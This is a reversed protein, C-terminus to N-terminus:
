QAPAGAPEVLTRWANAGLLQAGLAAYRDPPGSIGLVVNDPDSPRPAGGSLKVKARAPAGPDPGPLAVGPLAAAIVADATVDVERLDPNGVMERSVAGLLATVFPLERETVAEALLDPSSLKRMGFTVVRYANDIPLVGLSLQDWIPLSEDPRPLPVEDPKWLKLNDPDFVLGGVEAAVRRAAVGAALLTPSGVPGGVGIMALRPMKKLQEREAEGASGSLFVFEPPPLDATEALTASLGDPGELIPLAAACLEDKCDERIRRALSKPEVAAALAPGEVSAYVAFAVSSPPGKPAEAKAPAEAAGEPGGGCGVSLLLGLATLALRQKLGEPSM